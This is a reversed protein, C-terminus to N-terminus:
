GLHADQTFRDMIKQSYTKSVPINPLGDKDLDIVLGDETRKLLRVHPFNVIYSRHCRILDRKSFYEEMSRLKNRLMFHQVKGGAIYHLKVYNDASEIYYLSDPRISLKLEGKEDYFSLMDDAGYKDRNRAERLGNQELIRNQHQLIFAMMTIAYPILLIFTTYTLSDGYLEFFRFEEKHSPLVVYPTLAYVMSMLVIETAVWCGYDVYTLDHHKNYLFMLWRSGAVILMALLVALTAFLFYQGDTANSIWQRSNFPQYINIFLEAYLATWLVVRVANRKGNIYKPIVPLM